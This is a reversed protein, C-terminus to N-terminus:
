RKRFTRRKRINYNNTTQNNKLFNLLKNITSYEFLLTANLNLNLKKNLDLCVDMLMLSSFGLDFFNDDRLIKKRISSSFTNIVISDIDFSPAIPKEKTTEKVIKLLKKSDVKNHHNLPFNSVQIIVKPVSYFPLKNKLYIILDDKNVKIDSQIFAIIEKQKQNENLLVAAQKINLYSSVMKEVENLEVRFGSIKVQHDDRGHFLFNGDLDLSAKDGTKYVQIEKNNLTIGIFRKKTEEENKLYGLSIGDGGVYLDGIMGYSLPEMKKNLIFANSNAIPRGIPIQSHYTKGRNIRYCLSFTTNETPGYGNIIHGNKLKKLMMEVHKVSVIDGGVILYKLDALCKAHCDVLNNFLASTLFMTTVGYKKIFEHLLNPNLVLHDSPLVLTGGNLLPSWIELTAADFAIPSSNIFVDDKDITIFDTEKVLRVVGKHQVLVAKPVGTSGSTFNVYAITNLDKNRKSFTDAKAESYINMENVNFTRINGLQDLVEKTDTELLLIPHNISKLISDIRAKPYNLDLPVYSCGIKLIALIAIISLPKDKLYFCIFSNSKIECSTLYNAMNDSYIDLEKYTMHRGKSRLAIKDPNKKVIHDFITEIRDKEYITNIGYYLQNIQNENILFVSSLRRGNIFVEKFLVEFNTLIINLYEIKKKSTLRVLVEKEKELSIEFHIKCNVVEVKNFSVLVENSVDNNQLDILESTYTFRYEDSNEDKELDYLRKDLQHSDNIIITAFEYDNYKFLLAVLVDIVLEKNITQKSKFIKEINNYISTHEYFDFPLTNIKKDLM